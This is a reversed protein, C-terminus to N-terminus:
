RCPGSNQGLHGVTLRAPHHGALCRLRCEGVEGLHREVQAPGRDEVVVADHQRRAVAGVAPALVGRREEGGGVRGAALRDFLGVDAGLLALDEGQAVGAESV